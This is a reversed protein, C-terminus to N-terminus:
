AVVLIVGGYYGSRWFDFNLSISSGGGPNSGPEEGGAVGAPHWVPSAKVVLSRRANNRM